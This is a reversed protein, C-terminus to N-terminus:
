HLKLIPIFIQYKQLSREYHKIAIETKYEIEFKEQEM